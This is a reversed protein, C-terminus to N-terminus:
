VKTLAKDLKPISTSKIPFLPKQQQVLVPKFSLQDLQVQRKQQITPVPKFSLQEMQAQRIEM